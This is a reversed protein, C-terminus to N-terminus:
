LFKLLEKRLWGEKGGLMDLYGDLDSMFNNFFDAAFIEVEETTPYRGRHLGFSAPVRSLKERRDDGRKHSMGNKVLDKFHRKIYKLYKHHHEMQTPDEQNEFYNHLKILVLCIFFTVYIFYPKELGIGLVELIDETKDQDKMTYETFPLNPFLGDECISFDCSKPTNKLWFKIFNYAEDDKGLQVMMFPVLARLYMNYPQLEMILKLHADLGIQLGHYSADIRGMQALAKVRIGGSRYGMFLKGLNSHDGSNIIKMDMEGYWRFGSAEVSEYVEPYEQYFGEQTSKHVDIGKGKLIKDCKIGIDRQTGYYSICIARHVKKFHIRQCEEGCYEALKCNGCKRLSQFNKNLEKLQDTDKRCEFCFHRDPNSIPCPM